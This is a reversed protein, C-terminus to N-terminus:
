RIDMGPRLPLPVCRANAKTKKKHTTTMIIRCNVDRTIKGEELVFLAELKMTSDPEVTVPLDVGERDPCKKTHVHVPNLPEEKLEMKFSEISTPRNGTNRITLVTGISESPYPKSRSVCVPYCMDVSLSVKVWRSYALYLLSGIGSLSGIALLVSWAQQLFSWYQEASM